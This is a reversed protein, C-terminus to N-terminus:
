EQSLLFGTEKSVGRSERRLKDRVQYPAPIVPL